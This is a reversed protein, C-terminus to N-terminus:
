YRKGYKDYSVFESIERRKPPSPSENPYGLPILEVVTVDEPLELLESAAKHDLYGAHLTALGLSHAALCLNQCAIGLDFMMWDGLSTVMGGKYMGSKKWRGCMAIVVPAAIMAKRAPNGKSLVESLKEKTQEDRIVIVEWPQVNAWSPAWRIAELVQALLQDKIPASTYKRISRREM